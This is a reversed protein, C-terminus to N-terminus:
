RRAAGDVELYRFGLYGFPRLEQAGAREDFDWHM